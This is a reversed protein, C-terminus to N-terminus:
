EYYDCLTLRKKGTGEKLLFEEVNIYQMELIKGTTGSTERFTIMTKVMKEFGCNM